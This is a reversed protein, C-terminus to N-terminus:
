IFNFLNPMYLIVSFLSIWFLLFLVVLLFVESDTSDMFLSINVKHNWAYVTENVIIKPSVANWTLIFTKLSTKM